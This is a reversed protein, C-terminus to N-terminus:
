DWEFYELYCDVRCIVRQLDADDICKVVTSDLDPPIITYTGDVNPWYVELPPFDYFSMCKFSDTTFVLQCIELCSDLPSLTSDRYYEQPTRDPNDLVTIEEISDFDDSYQEFEGKTCSVILLASMLLLFCSFMVNVSFIKM